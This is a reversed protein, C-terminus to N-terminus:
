HIQTRSYGFGLFWGSFTMVRVSGVLFKSEPFVRGSGFGTVLDAPVRIQFFFLSIM